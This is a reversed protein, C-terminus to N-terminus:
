MEDNLNELEEKRDGQNVKLEIHQSHFEFYLKAIVNPIMQIRGFM